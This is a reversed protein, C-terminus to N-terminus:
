YVFEWIMLINFLWEIAKSPKVQGSSAQNMIEMTGESIIKEPQTVSCRFIGNIYEKFLFQAAETGIKM